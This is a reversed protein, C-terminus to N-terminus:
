DNDPINFTERVKSCLPLIVMDDIKTGTREVINEAADIAADAVGKLAEDPLAAVLATVLSVGTM